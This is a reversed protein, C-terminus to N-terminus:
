EMGDGRVVIFPTKLLVLMDLWLSQRKLYYLDYELRKELSPDGRSMVQQYGTIGPKTKLRRWQYDDYMGVLETREPRPGVVSMEGRLVNIFQPIEDLSTRRLIAGVRTVRPDKRINFVPESMSSFEVFETLRGDAGDVMSRFKLMKFPRGNMGIREQVYLVPGKSSLKIAIAIAIWLPVGIVLIAMSFLIDLIRKVVSYLPHQTSDRLLLLPFGQYSGMESRLVTVDTSFAIFYLPIKHAECYNIIRMLLPAHNEERSEPFDSTSVIVRDFGIRSKILDIEDATGLVKFSPKSGPDSCMDHSFKLFGVVEQFDNSNEALTSAFQMALANAGVILTKTRPLGLQFIRGSLRQGVERLAIMGSASLTFGIGYVFRSLIFGTFLFSVAMLVVLSTLGTWLINPIEARPSNASILRCSYIGDRAMLLTWVFAYIAAASLYASLSHAEFDFQQRIPFYNQLASQFRVTYALFFAGFIFLPDIFILIWRRRKWIECLIRNRGAGTVMAVDRPSCFNGFGEGRSDATKIMQTDFRLFSFLFVSSIADRGGRHRM